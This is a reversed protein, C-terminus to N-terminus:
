AVKLEKLKDTIKQIKDWSSDKESQEKDNLTRSPMGSICQQLVWWRRMLRYRKGELKKVESLQAM